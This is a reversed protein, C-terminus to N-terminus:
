VAPYPWFRVNACRGQWYGLLSGCGCSSVRVSDAPNLAVKRTLRAWTAKAQAALEASMHESPAPRAAISEKGARVEALLGQPVSPLAVFRGDPLFAGDAALVHLHPNFNVLDGFSLCEGTAQLETVM